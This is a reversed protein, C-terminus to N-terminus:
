SSISGNFGLLDRRLMKWMRDLVSSLKGESKNAWDRIAQKQQSSHYEKLMNDLASSQNLLEKKRRLLDDIQDIKENRNM